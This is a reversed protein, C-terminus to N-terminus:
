QAFLAVLGRSGRVFYATKGQGSVEHAARETKGTERLQAIQAATLLDGCSAASKAIGRRHAFPDHLLQRTRPPQRRLRTRRLCGRCTGHGDSGAGVRERRSSAGRGSPFVPRFVNRLDEASIGCGQDEVTLEADAGKRILTLVIPTGAQSYKCANDILNDVSQELLSPHASVWLPKTL